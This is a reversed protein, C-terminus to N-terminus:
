SASILIGLLTRCPDLMSVLVTLVCYQIRLTSYRITTKTIWILLMSGEDWCQLRDVTFKTWLMSVLGFDNGLLVHTQINVVFWICLGNLFVSIQLFNGASM